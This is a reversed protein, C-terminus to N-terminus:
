VLEADTIVEILSPGTAASKRSDGREEPPYIKFCRM